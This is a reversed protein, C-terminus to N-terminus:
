PSPYVRRHRPRPRRARGPPRPTPTQSSELYLSSPLIRGGGSLHTQGPSQGLRGRHNQAMPFLAIPDADRLSPVHHNHNALHITDRSSLLAMLYELAYTLPQPLPFHM